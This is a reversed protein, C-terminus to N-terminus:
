PAWSGDLAVGIDTLEQRYRIIEDSIAQSEFRSALREMVPDTWSISEEHVLGRLINIQHSTLRVFYEDDSEEPTEEPDDPM